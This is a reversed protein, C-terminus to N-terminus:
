ISLVLLLRPYAKPLFLVGTGVFSKLLLLAAKTMTANGKGSHYSRVRGKHKLLPRTEPEEGEPVEREEEDVIVWKGFDFIGPTIPEDWEELDEGAFHGYLTLFHLFNRTVFTPYVEEGLAPQTHARQLFNRRFGGPVMIGQVTEQELERRAPFSFSQSRQPTGSGRRSQQEAFRYVQRTIDGGQLQLSSFEESFPVDEGGSVKKSAEADLNSPGPPLPPSNARSTREFGSVLHKRIIEPDEDPQASWEQRSLGSATTRKSGLSGYTGASPDIKQFDQLLPTSQPQQPGTIPTITGSRHPPTPIPSQALRALSAARPSSDRNSFSITQFPSAPQRPRKDSSISRPTSM